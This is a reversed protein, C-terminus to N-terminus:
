EDGLISIVGGNVDVIAGQKIQGNLLYNAVGAVIPIGSMMAGQVVSPDPMSETLIAIPNTGHQYLQYIFRWAGASGRTAPIVLVKGSIIQHQIDSSSEVVRGSRIDIDGLCSMPWNSLLAPGRAKGAVVERGTWINGM